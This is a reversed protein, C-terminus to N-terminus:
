VQYSPSPEWCTSGLRWVTTSPSVVGRRRWHLWPQWAVVEFTACFAFLLQLPGKPLINLTCVHDIFHLFLFFYLLNLLVVQCRQPLPPSLRGSWFYRHFAFLNSHNQRCCISIICVCDHLLLTDPVVFFYSFLLPGCVCVVLTVM